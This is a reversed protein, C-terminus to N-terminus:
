GTSQAVASSRRRGAPRGTTILLLALQSGRGGGGAVRGAGGLLRSTSLGAGGAGTFFGVKSGSQLSVPRGGRWQALVSCRGGPWVVAEQM